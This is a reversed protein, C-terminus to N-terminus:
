PSVRRSLSQRISADHVPADEHEGQQDAARGRGLAVGRVRGRADRQRHRRQGAIEVRGRRRQVRGAHREEAVPVQGRHVGPEDVLADFRAAGADPQVRGRRDRQREQGAEADPQRELLEQRRAGRQGGIRASRQAQRQREGVRGRRRQREAQVEVVEGAVLQVIRGGEVDAQGRAEVGV